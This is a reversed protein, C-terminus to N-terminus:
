AQKIRPVLDLICKVSTLTPHSLPRKAYFDADYAGTQPMLGEYVTYPELLTLIDGISYYKGPAVDFGISYLIEVCFELCTYADRIPVPRKLPFALFSLHNYLYEERNQYMADMRAELAAYTEESVPIRHIKVSSNVGNPNFRSTSERVFGGYLPVKRYRRAFGYMRTLDEDLAISAHNYADKTFSRIMKGIKYPTASFVIYVYKENM